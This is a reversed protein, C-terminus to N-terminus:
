AEQEGLEPGNRKEEGCFPCFKYHLPFPYVVRRGCSTVGEKRTTRTWHCLLQKPRCTGFQHNGNDRMHMSM